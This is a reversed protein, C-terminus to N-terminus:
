PRRLARIILEEIESAPDRMGRDLQRLSKIFEERRAAITEMRRRMVMPGVIMLHVITPRAEIFVGKKAGEHLIGSLVTVIRKLDLLIEDPLHHGGSAIERIIIPSFSPHEKMLGALTRVYLRLKEEPPDEEQMSNELQEAVHLFVRHLVESYLTEKDGIRYYIMAKNVGARRAIEDVRAGEFGSEAFVELAADLIERVAQERKPRLQGSKM